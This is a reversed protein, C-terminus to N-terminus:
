NRASGQKRKCCHKFASAATKLLSRGSKKGGGAASLSKEMTDNKRQSDEAEIFSPIKWARMEPTSRQM